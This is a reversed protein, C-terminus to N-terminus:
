DAPPRNYRALARRTTDASEYTLTWPGSNVKFSKDFGVWMGDMTCGPLDVLLQVAGHYVAGKYYGEAATRETWTGTLAPGDQTLELFIPSDNSGPLSEGYLRNGIRRLNVFHRRTVQGRSTSHYTYRSCWIGTLAEGGGSDEGSLAQVSLGLAQAIAPLWDRPTRIGKEYRYIEQRGLANLGVDAARCAESALREQSWGLQKRRDRIREGVNM